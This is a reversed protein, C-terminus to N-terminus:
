MCRQIELFALSTASYAILLSGGASGGLTILFILYSFAKLASILGRGWKHPCAPGRSAPAWAAETCSGRSRGGRTGETVAIPTLLSPPSGSVVCAARLVGHHPQQWSPSRRGPCGPPEHLMELTTGRTERALQSSAAVREGPDQASASRRM